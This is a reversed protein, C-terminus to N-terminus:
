AAESETAHKPKLKVLYCEEHIALGHEDTKASELSVPQNCIPCVTPCTQFYSSLKVPLRLLYKAM